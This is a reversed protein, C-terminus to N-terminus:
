FPVLSFFTVCTLSRLVGNRSLGLTFLTSPLPLFTAAPFEVFVAPDAGDATPGVRPPSNAPPNGTSLGTPCLSLSCCLVTDREPEVALRFCGRQFGGDCPSPNLPLAGSREGEWLGKSLAEESELVRGIEEYVAGGEGLWVECGEKM